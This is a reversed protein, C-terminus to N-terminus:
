SAAPIFPVSITAQRREALDAGKPVSRAATRVAPGWGPAVRGAQDAQLVRREGRGSDAGRTVVAGAVLATQDCAPASPSGAMTADARM